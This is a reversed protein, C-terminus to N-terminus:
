LSIDWQLRVRSGDQLTEPSDQFQFHGYEITLKNRHQNFFWNAGFSIENRFNNSIKTDPDYIAFRYFFELKRPFRPFLHHFFYGLQFYNGYLITNVDNVKDKIEKWHFEQQWSLGGVMASTEILWQNIRYQGELGEQFGPLQGGGNTSFRTFPSRNTVAALALSFIFPNKERLDSGTFPVPTSLPNWQLRSMWMLNRDDNNNNGRGTGMFTSVWYNFDNAGDGDLHGYLSIGQQRDLTFAYNMISRDVAQQKGSSIVRERSYQVKWQGVKLNIAPSFQYMIRYDLLATAWLEYELYYKLKPTFAHGGVKMRARNIGLIVQQDGFDELSVPDNDFPFAVRTQLRWEIQMLYKNDITRLEFGKEGYRLTVKLSDQSHDEQAQLKLNPLCLLALLFFLFRHSHILTVM